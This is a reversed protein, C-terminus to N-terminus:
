WRVEHKCRVHKYEQVGVESFTRDHGCLEIVTFGLDSIQPGLITQEYAYLTCQNCFYM